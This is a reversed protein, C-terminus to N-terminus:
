GYWPPGIASVVVTITVCAASWTLEPLPWVPVTPAGSAFASTTRSTSGSFPLAGRAYEPTGTVNVTVDPPPFNPVCVVNTSVVLASPRTDAVRVSPVVTPPFATLTDPVPRAPPTTPKVAVPTGAAGYSRSSREPFLWVSVTPRTASVLRSTATRSVKPLRVGPAGTKNRTVTPPPRTLGCPSKTGRSVKVTVASLKPMARAESWKSVTAPWFVTVALKVPEALETTKVANPTASVGSRNRNPCCTELM